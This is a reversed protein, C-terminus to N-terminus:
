YDEEGTAYDTRRITTLFLRAILAVEILLLFAYFMAFGGKLPTATLVGTSQQSAFLAFWDVISGVPPTIVILILTNVLLGIAEAAFELLTAM